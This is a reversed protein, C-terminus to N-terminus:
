VVLFPDQFKCGSSIWEAIDRTSQCIEPQTAVEALFNIEQSV